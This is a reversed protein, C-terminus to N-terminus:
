LFSGGCRVWYSRNKLIRPSRFTVRRYPNELFEKYDKNEVMIKIVMYGILDPPGFLLAVQM